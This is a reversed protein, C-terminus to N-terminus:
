KIEDLDDGTPAVKQTKEEALVNRPGKYHRRGGLFFWSLAIILVAGTVPSAYNMTSALVPLAVPLSLIVCVTATWGVALIRVTWGLWGTGLYFPGPKFNVEPHNRHIMHAVISFLYSSDM